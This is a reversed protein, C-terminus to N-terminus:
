HVVLKKVVVESNLNLQLYYMGSKLVNDRKITLYNIGPSFNSQPIVKIVEGISNFIRIEAKGKTPLYFSIDASEDMPNPSIQVENALSETNIIGLSSIINVDDIYVNNGGEGKFKFKIRVNSQNAMNMISVVSQKWDSPAPVYTSFTPAATALNAGNITKRQYWTKGCDASVFVLLQDQSSSFSPAFAYKFTFYPAAIASINIAPSILENVEGASAANNNIYASVTGSSAAASSLQWNIGSGDLDVVSWDAGPLTANEFSEAYFNSNYQAVAPKVAVYNAKTGSVSTTGDSVTLSVSYTGAVAYQVMPMADNVTTGNVLTGGPFSWQWSSVLGNYSRDSFTLIEGACLTTSSPYSTFDAKCLLPANNVGTANLNSTTWLSNRSGFSSNLAATMRAKQGWTFMHECYSYEMYNQVNEKIGSTCISGNINCSTWGKTLPTDGVGDDGCAIGPSNTSGWVHALNLYHGTEHTLVRSNFVSSTGISGFYNHLIIVGEADPPATGPYYAYGAIGGPNINKVVWINYYKYDPWPNLKSGDDGINTQSSFIRDIGNTCNGDPGIQALKFEIQCDAAVSQFAAIIQTTDANRKRFDDNLVRIADHVQTDSINELGNEHIIHVVVPIVIIANANKNATYGQSNQIQDREINQKQLLNYNELKQPYRKLSEAVKSDTACFEGPQANLLKVVFFLAILPLRKYFM